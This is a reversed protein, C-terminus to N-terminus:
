RSLSEAKQEYNNEIIYTVKQKIGHVFEIRKITKLDEENAFGVLAPYVYKELQPHYEAFNSRMDYQVFVGKSPQADPYLKKIANYDDLSLVFNIGNGQIAYDIRIKEM